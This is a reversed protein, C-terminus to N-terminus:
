LLYHRYLYLMLLMLQIMLGVVTPTGAQELLRMWSPTTDQPGLVRRIFVVLLLVVLRVPWQLVLVVIGLGMLYITVALFCGLLPSEDWTLNDYDTYLWLGLFLLISVLLLYNLATLSSSSLPQESADPDFDDLPRQM